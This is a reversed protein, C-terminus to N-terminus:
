IGAKQIQQVFVMYGHEDYGPHPFSATPFVRLFVGVSLILGM